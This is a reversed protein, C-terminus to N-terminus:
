VAIWCHHRLLRYEAKSLCHQPTNKRACFWPTTLALVIRLRLLRQMIFQKLSETDKEIIKLVYENPGTISSCEVIQKQHSVFDDLM